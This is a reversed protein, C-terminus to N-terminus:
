SVHFGTRVTQSFAPHVHVAPHPMHEYNPEYSLSGVQRLPPHLYQLILHTNMRHSVRFGTRGTQSFAPPVTPHPIHEYKSECSLSGVQRSSASPLTPRSTHENQSECSIGVQGLSPQLILCSKM